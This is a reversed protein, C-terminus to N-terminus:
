TNGEFKDGAIAIDHHVEGGVVEKITVLDLEPEWKLVAFVLSFVVNFASGVEDRSAALKSFIFAGVAM